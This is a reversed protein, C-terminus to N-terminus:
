LNYDETNALHQINAALQTPNTATGQLKRFENLFAQLQRTIETRFDKELQDNPRPLTHAELHDRTFVPIGEDLTVSRLDQHNTNDHDITQTTGIDNTTQASHTFFSKAAVVRDRKGARHIREQHTIMAPTISLERVKTIERGKKSTIEIITLILEYPDTTEPTETHTTISTQISKGNITSIRPQQLALATLFKSSRYSPQDEEIEEKLTQLSTELNERQIQIIQLLTIALGQGYAEAIAEILEAQVKDIATATNTLLSELDKMHESPDKFKAEKQVIPPTPIETKANYLFSNM